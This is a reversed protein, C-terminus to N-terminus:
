YLIQPTDAHTDSPPEDVAFKGSGPRVAHDGRGFRIRIRQYEDHRVHSPRARGDGPGEDRLQHAAQLTARGRQSQRERPQFLTQGFGAGRDLLEDLGFVLLLGRVLYGDAVAETAQAKEVRQVPAQEYLLRTDDFLGKAAVRATNVTVLVERRTVAVPM